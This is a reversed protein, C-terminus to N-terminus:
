FGKVPQRNRAEATHHDKRHVTGCPWRDLFLFHSFNRRFHVNTAAYIFPNITSNCWVMVELVEWLVASACNSGCFAFVVTMIKYPTWFLIFCGTLISLVISAKRHKALRNRSNKDRLDIRIADPSAMEFSNISAERKSRAAEISRTDGVTPTKGMNPKQHCSGKVHLSTCIPKKSVVNSSQKPIQENCYLPIQRDGSEKTRRRINLYVFCNLVIAVALVISFAIFNIFLTAFRNYVFAMRCSESHDANTQGTMSSWTFELFSFFGIVIAWTSTLILGVRKKTQCLKYKLGRTVMCYRDWSIYAMTLISVWSM